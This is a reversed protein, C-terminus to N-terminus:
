THKIIMDYVDNRNQVIKKTLKLKIKEPGNFHTIKLKIRTLKKFKQM